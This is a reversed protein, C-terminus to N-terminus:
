TEYHYFVVLFGAEAGAGGSLDVVMAENDTGKSVVLNELNKNPVNAVLAGSNVTGIIDTGAPSELLLNLGGAIADTPKIILGDLVPYHASAPDPIIVLNLQSGGALLYPVTVVRKAYLASDTISTTPATITPGQVFRNTNLMYNKITASNSEALLGSADKNSVWIGASTLTYLEHVFPNGLWGIRRQEKVTEQSLSALTYSTGLALEAVIEAPSMRYFYDNPLNSM